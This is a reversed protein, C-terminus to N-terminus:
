RSPSPTPRPTRRGPSARRGDACTRIAELLVRRGYEVASATDFRDTEPAVKFGIRAYCRALSGADVVSPTAAIEVAHRLEHGLIALGSPDPLHTVLIQLYRTGGAAAVFQIQGAIGPNSLRGFSVYVVVDSAELQNVLDRFTPSRDIGADIVARLEPSTTRIHSPVAAAAAPALALLLVTVIPGLSRSTRM